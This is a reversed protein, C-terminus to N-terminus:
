YIIKKSIMTGNSLTVQIILGANNKQINTLSIEYSNVKPYNALERGLVDFVRVSEIENKTSKVALAELSIVWLNAEDTSPDDQGLTENTYRLVFRNPYNGTTASFNYPNLRLDHIINTLNDELYINQNVDTFFGDVAGIAISYNGNQPVKIGMPVRDNEDFPISRGQIKMIENGISSYLNLSLKESTIADYMRDRDNTADAVYAVLNRINSGNSAILDLWIRGNENSTRYFENNNHSRSRMTNNFTVNETSSGSTHNMLVFFAQGAGINGGYTRPGASSGSSNFTIYDSPTYNYVYNNYFPDAAASGPLTGHTWINVFGALNTNLTLFDIANIASPYPNGILNWNDDNNTGLTTSVGTSYNGGNWTGRSIPITITGNNPTGSFVANFPTRTSTFNDPGRVIYGKGRIMTENAATWNGFGNTNSPITPTWKYKYGTTGPSVNNLNFSTVPSSWYVYDLKRINATRTMNIIGQNSDNNIQILSAANEINFVGSTEVPVGTEVIVGNTITLTNNSLVDLRGGNKIILSKGYGNYNTGVINAISASAPIIVCSNATPVVAPSWNGPNNWDNNVTGKWISSMNEITINQSVNCGNTLTATATFTYSGTELQGLAPKVYVTTASTGSVYPFTTAADTYVNPMPTGSWNLATSLPKTGFLEVDDIAAGNAWTSTYYRIRVKLNTQNIYATFDYSYDTFRTGYGIDSTINGSIPLWTTGGNTSVDVTMLEDAPNNGNPYYRDFYVRFAFTLSLLGTSNVTSSVLGNDVTYYTSPGSTGIDSTVFAFNNAGFNSQIAPFWTAGSGSPVFASTKIQWATEANKTPNSVNHVNSFTGLGSEFNEEILHIIENDGSATLAVISNEGCVETNSTAFSLTPISKVLANIKTRVLTECSGNFAAVWYDTTTSISPTNWTGTATTALPTGGREAAYWRFETTGVTGTAQLTVVGSGCVFGNTITAIRAACNEVVRLIYDETEGYYALNTTCSDWAFGADAGIGNRGSIRLRVRYDGAAIGTPVIFGLTTSAQSTGGANYVTEGADAFDGDSNWDVWAKIYGSSPSEMYINVGEGKAQISKVALGTYNQYGFPAVTPFSSTNVIDQLTGIFEVKRIYHTTSTQYTSSITPVCYIPALTTTNGRLPATGLYLPGGTCLGNFSYIYFYYATLPILGTATFTTNTDTDVITYGPALTGGITYSTTNVPATPPTASTSVVVLYSDSAPSAATFSGSISSGSPTLSLATPQATPAVCLPPTYCSVSLDFGSCNNSGDSYFRVTLSGSTSTITPVTFTACSTGSGHASGGWLIAGGTGIGDYITLYDYGGESTISGSVRVFSGVTLPNIVTYGDSSTAYDGVLGGNDYLNGSCVTFSNNGTAPVVMIPTFTGTTSGTSVGSATCTVLLRWTRVVGVAPATMGSLAIYSSTATGQNTWPAAGTNSYQWQYTLGTGGSYGSATVGYTSGPTGAIPAVTVSGGVPTGSCPLLALVTLKYDEAEGYSINSCPDPSLNNWWARVRMRYDGAATGGPITISGTFGTAIAAANYLREGVEFTGNNNFDVWISLGHSGGVYTETFNVVSGAYQSASFISYFNGYGTGSLTTPSNSINTVGGTTSFGSIYDSTNTSTPTCYTTTDSVCVTGTWANTGTNTRGIRIYYTTNPLVTPNLSIATNATANNCAVPTFGSCNGSYIAVVWPRNTTADLTIQTTATGTTFTYWGDKAATVSNCLSPNGTGTEVTNATFTYSTNTCSTGLNIVTANACNDNVSQGFTITTFIFFLFFYINKWIFSLKKM